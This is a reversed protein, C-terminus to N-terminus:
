TENIMSWLCIHRHPRDDAESLLGFLYSKISNTCNPLCFLYCYIKTIAFTESSKRVLVLLVVIVALSFRLENFRPVDKDVDSTVLAVFLLLLLASIDIAIAVVDACAMDGDYLAFEPLGFVIFVEADFPALLVDITTLNCSMADRMM